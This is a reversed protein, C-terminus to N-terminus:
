VRTRSYLLTTVISIFYSISYNITLYTAFLINFKKTDIRSCFRTAVPNMQMFPFCQHAVTELTSTLDSFCLFSLLFKKICIWIRNYPLSNYFILGLAHLFPTLACNKTASAGTKCLFKTDDYFFLFLCNNHSEFWNRYMMVIIQQVCIWKLSVIKEHFLVVSFSLSMRGSRRM